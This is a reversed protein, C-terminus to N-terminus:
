FKFFVRVDAQFMNTHVIVRKIDALDEYHELAQYSSTLILLVYSTAYLKSVRQLLGAKECLNAVRPRDYHTFMENGLIADAVQPAHVLNMELLRTQLHGQEPKNEKLADLLFSTAPQIMNQSMFIDVVREVDVMAGGDDNVLQAAFEAGKEPNTRMVHQLLSVYDPTYGVKKAYLVIKDTQGTEAFCAIVKNPVNARLYISLALTM